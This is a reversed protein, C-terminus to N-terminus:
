LLRASREHCLYIWNGNQRNQPVAKQRTDKKQVVKDLQKQLNNLEKLTGQYIYEGSNLLISLQKLNTM